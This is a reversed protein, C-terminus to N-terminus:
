KQCDRFFRPTAEPAAIQSYFDAYYALSSKVVGPALLAGVADSYLAEIATRKQRFLEYVAPYAPGHVCHGRFYRERVKKIPLQPDIGAYLANIVGAFDFDYVVPINSGDPMAVLEANHLTRFSYDTHGILYQFVDVTATAAPDLNDANAGQQTVLKGGIRAAVQDADEIFFSWRVAEVARTASDVYTMRLLRVRHARDTVVRFVRYLQAEHLVNQEYMDSNRCYSVLKPDGVDDFLTNKAAKNAIKFKLPPFDCHKLRWVGRTRVRVPLSVPTRGAGVFAITAERWPSQDEKDRKLQKLNATLTIALPAETRFLPPDPLTKAKKSPKPTKVGQAALGDTAIFAWAVALLCRVLFRGHGHAMM